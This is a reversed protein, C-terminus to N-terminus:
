YLFGFLWLPISRGHGAEIDDLVLFADEVSKIQKKGKTKGGIEFIWRGDVMFDGSAPYTLRHGKKLQNQFFTERVLGVDPHENFCRLLNTNDLYIKDPKRLIQNGESERSLVGLVEARDLYHLYKLLTRQDVIHLQERIRSLNPVYPVSSAIVALLKKIKFINEWSIETVAPLDNELIVTIVENMRATYHEPSEIFYPYYGHQLYHRFFGFVPTASIIEHAVSEHMEMLDGISLAPYVPGGQYALFERFSLGKMQYMVKRRSLDGKGKYLKLLSSGTYVVKLRPYQDYINKLEASWDVSPHRAPYKHVEDLFLCAGGERYFAAATDLLSNSFFWPHDLSVYLAQGPTTKNLLNVRQLMFTTKGVGRSGTIEILRLNWDIEDALYRIFRVSIERSLRDSLEWLTQM